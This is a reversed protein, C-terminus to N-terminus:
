SHLGFRVKKWHIMHLTNPILTPGTVCSSAQVPMPMMKGVVVQRVQTMLCSVMSNIKHSCHVLEHAVTRLVDMVHRNPMSVNLTHLEPDYRGFSQNHESWAPDTHLHIEPVPDIGLETTVHQIFDQVISNDTSDELFQKTSAAVGDSTSYPQSQMGESFGYRFRQRPEAERLSLERDELATKTDKL